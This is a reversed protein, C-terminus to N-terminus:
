TSACLAGKRQLFECCMLNRWMGFDEVDWLGVLRELDYLSSCHIKRVIVYLGAKRASKQELQHLTSVCVTILCELSLFSVLGCSGCWPARRDVM